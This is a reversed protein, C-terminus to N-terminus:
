SITLVRAFLGQMWLGKCCRIRFMHFRVDWLCGVDNQFWFKHEHCLQLSMQESAIDLRCISVFVVEVLLCIKFTFFGESECYSLVFM